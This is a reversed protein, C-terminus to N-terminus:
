RHNDLLGKEIAAPVIEEWTDVGLREAMRNVIEYTASESRGRRVAIIPPDYGKALDHLVSKQRKTLHVRGAGSTPSANDSLERLTKEVTAEPSMAGMAFYTQYNEIGMTQSLRESTEAHTMLDAPLLSGGVRQMLVSAAGFMMAAEVPEGRHVRICALGSLAGGATWADGQRWMRELAELMMATAAPLHSEDAAAMERLTEGAFYYSVAIGWEYRAEIAIERAEDFLQLAQSSDGLMRAVVGYIARCGVLGHPVGWKEFNEEAADVQRITELLDPQEQRYLVLARILHCFGIIHSKGTRTMAGEAAAVAEIARKDDNQIWRLFALAPLETGKLWDFEQPLEMATELWYRGETILGRTQYVAWFPGAIRVIFARGVEGQQEFWRLAARISPVAAMAREIGWKPDPGGWFFDSSAESFAMMALAHTQRAGELEGRNELEKQGFERITELMGFVLVGDIDEPPLILHHDLLSAIARHCDVDLAPLVHPLAIVHSEHPIPMGGWAEQEATRWILEYGHAWTRITGPESGQLMGEVLDKSFGGTFLSMRRLLAQEAPDLLEYSWRIADDITRHRAERGTGRDEFDDDHRALMEEPTLVN